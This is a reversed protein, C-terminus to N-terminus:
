TKEFKVLVLIFKNIEENVLDLKLRKRESNPMVMWEYQTMLCLRFYKEENNGDIGNPLGTM